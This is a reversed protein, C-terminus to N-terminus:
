AQWKARLRAPKHTPSLSKARRWPLSAAVNASAVCCPPTATCSRASELSRSMTAYSCLLSQTAFRPHAQVVM